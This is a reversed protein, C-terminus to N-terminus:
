KPGIVFGNERMLPEIVDPYSILIPTSGGVAADVEFVRGKIRLRISVLPWRQTKGPLVGEISVARKSAGVAKSLGLKKAVPKSITCVNANGTDLVAYYIRLWSKTQSNFAEVPEARVSLTKEGLQKQEKEQAARLRKAVANSRTRLKAMTEKAAKLEKELRLTDESSVRVKENGQRDFQSRKKKLRENQFRITAKLHEVDSHLDDVRKAAEAALVEAVMPDCSVSSENTSCNMEQYSMFADTGEDAADAGALAEGGLRWALEQDVANDVLAEVRNREEEDVIRDVLYEDIAAQREAESDEWIETLRDEVLADILDDAASNAERLQSEALVEAVTADVCAGDFLELPYRCRWKCDGGWWNAGLPKKSKNCCTSEGRLVFGDNCSWPCKGFFCLKHTRHANEPIDSDKFWCGSAFSFQTLLFIHFAIM